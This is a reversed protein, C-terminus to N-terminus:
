PQMLTGNANSSARVTQNTPQTTITIGDFVGMSVVTSIVGGCPSSIVVRYTGSDSPAAPNITLNPTTAGAIRGDDSLNVGNQQWQYTLPGQGAAAIQLSVPLGRATAVSLPQQLIEAPCFVPVVSAYTPGVRLEDFSHIGTSYLNVGSVTGVDIDSKVTGSAPEPGGPAPNLYLTFRDNGARLEAKLVFLVNSGVVPVVASAVQGAGGRQELVYRPADGGGVKGVFLDAGTSSRLYLGFFAGFNGEFLNDEPQMVFSVYFTAGAAGYSNAFNRALGSIADLSWTHVRNGFRQFGPVVLSGDAMMYNDFISANFGGATWGGSFGSGGNAGLLESNAAYNFLDLAVPLSTDIVVVTALATANAADTVRVTDTGPSSAATYVGGSTISGGTNNTALTFTYPATGGWATFNTTGGNGVTATAPAIILPLPPNTIELSVQFSGANNWWGYADATALYLRTAGAPPRVLQREGTSTLGDGIFFVQKLLPSLLLYDRSAVTSFDLRAPAPTADPADPGLFVGLLADIPMSFDSIGHEAGLNHSVINVTQGDPAALSDGQNPQYHLVGGSAHFVLAQDPAFALGGVPVPSQNPAVDPAEPANLSSQTGDPLGALYPTATGPVVIHVNVTATASHTDADTVLVTDIGTLLGATYAGNGAINGASSNTAFSFVYPPTGGTATFTVTGMPGAVVNTSAPAIQLPSDAAGAGACIWLLAVGALLLSRGPRPFCGFCPHRRTSATRSGHAFTLLANMRKTKM